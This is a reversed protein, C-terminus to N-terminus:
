FNIKLEKIENLTVKKKNIKRFIFSHFLINQPLIPGWWPILGNPNVNTKFFRNLFLSIKLINFSYSIRAPKKRYNSPPLVNMFKCIKRILLDRDERLEDLSYEFVNEKGYYEILKQIYPKYDLKKFNMFKDIFGKYDLIGGVAIYEVYWSVISDEMARTGIIIKAKPFIKKIRQLRKFRDDEKSFQYTYINEESIINIKKNSLIKKIYRNISSYDIEKNLNLVDKMWSKYFIHWHFKADIYPFVNWQFFTTGTKHMGLHIIIDSKNNKTHM